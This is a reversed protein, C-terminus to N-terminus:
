EEHLDILQNDKHIELELRVRENHLYEEIKTRENPNEKYITKLTKPSVLEFFKTQQDERLTQYLGTTQPYQNTLLRIYKLITSKNKQNESEALQIMAEYLTKIYSPDFEAIANESEKATLLVLIDKLKGDKLLQNIIIKKNELSVRKFAACREKKSKINLIVTIDNPNTNIPTEEVPKEEKPTETVEEQHTEEQITEEQVTEEKEKLFEQIEEKTKIQTYANQLEENNNLAQIYSDIKEKRSERTKKTGIQKYLEVGEVITKYMPFVCGTKDLVYAYKNKGVKEECIIMLGKEELIEPGYVQNKEIEYQTYIDIQEANVFIGNEDLNCYINM